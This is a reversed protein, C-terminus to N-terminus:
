KTVECMATLDGLNVKYNGEVPFTLLFGIARTEGPLLFVQHSSIVKDDVGFKIEAM